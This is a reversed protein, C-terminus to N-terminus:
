GVVSLRPPLNRYDGFMLSMADFGGLTKLDAPSKAPFAVLDPDLEDSGSRRLGDAPMNGGVSPCFFTRADQLYGGALLYGLGIPAANLGGKPRLSSYPLIYKDLPINAQKGSYPPALTTVNNGAFITRWHWAPTVHFYWVGANIDEITCSPGTRVAQGTRGDTYWGDNVSATAGAAYTSRYGGDGWAPYCPFYQGYDSCYSELGESMQALDNLCAARRAKERAAALAPLLLAALIAIIAIVVLLEILTFARFLHRLM